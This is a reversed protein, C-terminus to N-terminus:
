QLPDSVFSSLTSLVERTFSTLPIYGPASWDREIGVARRVERSLGVALGSGERSPRDMEEELGVAQEDVDEVRSGGGTWLRGLGVAKGDGGGTRLNQPFLFNSYFNQGPYVLIEM